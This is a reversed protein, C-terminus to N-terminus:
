KKGIFRTGNESLNKAYKAPNTEFKADCGACCFGYAKGEFTVTGVKPNIKNGMVPCVKNWPEAQKSSEGVVNSDKVETVSEKGQHSSTDPKEQAFLNVGSFVVFITIIFLYKKM